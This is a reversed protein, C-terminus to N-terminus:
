KKDGGTKDNGVAVPGIVGPLQKFVHWVFGLWLLAKIVIRIECIYDDLISFDIVASCDKGCINFNMTFQPASPSVNDIMEKFTDSIKYFPSFKDVLIKAAESSLIVGWEYKSDKDEEDEKPEETEDEPKDGDVSGFSTDIGNALSGDDSFYNMDVYYYKNDKYLLTGDTELYYNKGEYEVLMTDKHFLDQFFNKDKPIVNYLTGAIEKGNFYEYGKILKDIGTNFDNYLNNLTNLIEATVDNLNDLDIQKDSLDDAIQNIFNNFQNDTLDSPSSPRPASTASTPAQTGDVYRIDGYYQWDTGWRYFLGTTANLSSSSILEGSKNYSKKNGNQAVCTLFSKSSDNSMYDPYLICYDVYYKNLWGYNNKYSVFAGYGNLYTANYDEGYTFDLYKQFYARTDVGMDNLIHILITKDVFTNYYATGQRQNVSSYFQDVTIDGDYLRKYDAIADIAYDTITQYEETYTDEEASVPICLAFSLTILAILISLIKRMYM